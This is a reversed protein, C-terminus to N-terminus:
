AEKRRTPASHSKTLQRMSSRESVTVSRSACNARPVRSKTQFRKLRHPGAQKRARSCFCQPAAAEEGGRDLAQSVEAAHPVRKGIDIGIVFIAIQAAAPM